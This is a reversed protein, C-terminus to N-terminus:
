VLSKKSPRWDQLEVGAEGDTASTRAAQGRAPNCPDTLVSLRLCVFSLRLCVLGVSVFPSWRIVFPSLRSWTLTFIAVLSASTLSLFLTTRTFETNEDETAIWITVCVGKLHPTYLNWHTHTHSHIDTQTDTQVFKWRLLSSYRLMSQKSLQSVSQSYRPFHKQAVKQPDPTKDFTLTVTIRGERKITMQAIVVLGIKVM